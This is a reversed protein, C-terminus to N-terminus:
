VWRGGLFYNRRPSGGCLRKPFHLYKIRKLFFSLYQFKKMRPTMGGRIQFSRPDQGRRGRGTAGAEARNKWLAGIGQALVLIQLFDDSTRFFLEITLRCDNQPIFLGSQTRPPGHGSIMPPPVPPPPPRPSRDEAFKEANLM